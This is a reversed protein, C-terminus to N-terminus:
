RRYNIKEEVQTATLKGKKNKEKYLPLKFDWYQREKNSIYLYLGIFM